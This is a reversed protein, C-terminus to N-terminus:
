DRAQITVNTCTITNGAASSLWDATINMTIASATNLATTSENKMEVVDTLLTTSAATAVGQGIFEGSGGTSFCTIDADITWGRRYRTMMTIAVTPVTITAAHADTLKVRLTLSENDGCSFFGSAKFHLTKGALAFYNAPLVKVGRGAGLLTTEVDTSAVTITETQSFITGDLSQRLTGDIPDVWLTTKYMEVAGPEPTALVNGDTLKIPAGGATALGAPLHIRATPSATAIGLRDNVEDFEGTGLMVKGKTGHATSQIRLGEGAGTGGQLVQGGARGAKRIYQILDADTNLQGAAAYAGSVHQKFDWGGAATARTTLTAQLVHGALLTDTISGTFNAVVVTQTSDNSFRYLRDITFTTADAFVVSFGAATGELIIHVATEADTITLIGGHTTTVFRYTPTTM